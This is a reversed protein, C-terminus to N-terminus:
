GTPEAPKGKADPAGIPQTTTARVDKADTADVTVEEVDADAQFDKSLWGDQSTFPSGPLKADGVTIEFRYPATGGRAHATVAVPGGEASREARVAVELKASPRDASGFYFGVITGVIGIFLGLIERGRAFRRDEKDVDSFFLGHMLVIAAFGITFLVFVLTVIGRAFEQNPLQDVIPREGSWLIWGLLWLFGVVIVASWSIPSMFVAVAKDRFTGGSGGAM